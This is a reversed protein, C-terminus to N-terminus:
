SFGLKEPRLHPDLANGLLCHHGQIESVKGTRALAGVRKCLLQALVVADLDDCAFIVIPIDLAGGTGRPDAESFLLMRRPHLEHRIHRLRMSAHESLPSQFRGLEALFKFACGQVHLCKCTPRASYAQDSPGARDKCVRVGRARSEPTEVLPSPR